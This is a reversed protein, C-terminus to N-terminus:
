LYAIYYGKSYLISYSLSMVYYIAGPKNLDKLSCQLYHNVILKVAYKKRGGSIENTSMVAHCPTTPCWLFLPYSGLRDVYKVVSIMSLNLLFTPGRRSYLVIFKEVTKTKWLSGWAFTQLLYYINISFPM